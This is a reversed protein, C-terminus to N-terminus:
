PVPKLGLASEMDAKPWRDRHPAFTSVVVLKGQVAPGSRLRFWVAYEHGEKLFSASLPQLRRIADPRPELGEYNSEPRAFVRFGGGLPESLDTIYWATLGDPVEFYWVWDLNGCGLPVRFRFGDHDIGKIDILSTGFAFESRLPSGDSPYTILDFAERQIRLASVIDGHTLVPKPPEQAIMFSAQFAGLATVALLPRAHRLIVNM